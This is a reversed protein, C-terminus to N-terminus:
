EPVKAENIEAPAILAQYVDATIFEGGTIERDVIHHRADLRLTAHILSFCVGDMMEKHLIYTGTDYDRQLDHRRDARVRLPAGCRTCRVHLYIGHPDRAVKEASGRVSKVLKKFFSM